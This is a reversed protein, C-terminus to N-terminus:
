NTNGRLHFQVNGVATMTDHFSQTTCNGKQVPTCRMFEGFSKNRKSKWTSWETNPNEKIWQFCFDEQRKTEQWDYVNKSFNGFHSNKEVYSESM